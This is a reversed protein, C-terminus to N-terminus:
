IEGNTHLAGGFKPLTAVEVIPDRTGRSRKQPGSVRPGGPRPAAFWRAVEDRTPLRGQYEKWSAFPRKEAGGATPIVALGEDLLAQATELDIDTM